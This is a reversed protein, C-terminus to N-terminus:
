RISFILKLHITPMGPGEIDPPLYGRFHGYRCISALRQNIEPKKIMENLANTTGEDATLAYGDTIKRITNHSFFVIVGDPSLADFLIKVQKELMEKFNSTKLSIQTLQNILTMQFERKQLREILRANELATAAREAFTLIVKRAHENFGDIDPSELNLVGIM